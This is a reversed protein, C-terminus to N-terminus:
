HPQCLAQRQKKQLRLFRAQQPTVVLPQTLTIRDQDNLVTNPNAPNNFLCIQEPSPHHNLYRLAAEITTDKPVQASICCGRNNATIWALEITIMTSM